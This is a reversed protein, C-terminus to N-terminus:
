EGHLLTSIAVIHSVLAIWAFIVLLVKLYSMNSTQAPTTTTTPRSTRGVSFWWGFCCKLASTAQANDGEPCCNGSPQQLKTQNRNTETAYTVSTRCQTSATQRGDARVSGAAAASKRTACINITHFHGNTRSRQTNRSHVTHLLRGAPKCYTLEPEICANM